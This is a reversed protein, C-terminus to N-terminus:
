LYKELSVVALNIYSIIQIKFKSVFVKRKLREERYYPYVYWPGCFLPLFFNYEFAMFISDKEPQSSITLAMSTIRFISTVLCFQFLYIWIRSLDEHLFQTFIFDYWNCITMLSYYQFNIRSDKTKDM